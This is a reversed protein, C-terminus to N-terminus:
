EPIDVARLNRLNRPNVVVEAEERNHFIGLVHKPPVEAAWVTGLPLFPWRRAFWVARDLETTWSLGRPSGEGQVGRYVTLVETPQAVDAPNAVFGAARFLDLVQPQRLAIQSPYEIQTWWDGILQRLQEPTFFRGLETPSEAYGGRQWEYVQCLAHPAHQRSPHTRRLEERVQEVDIGGRRELKWPPPKALTERATDEM